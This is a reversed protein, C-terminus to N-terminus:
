VLHLLLNSIRDTLGLNLLHRVPQHHAVPFRGAAVHRHSAAGGAVQPRLREVCKQRRCYFFHLLFFLACSFYPAVKTASRLQTPRLKLQAECTRLACSRHRRTVPPKIAKSLDPGRRSSRVRTLSRMRTRSIRTMSSSPFCSPIMAGGCASAIALVFPSSRTSIEGVATGGSQRIM